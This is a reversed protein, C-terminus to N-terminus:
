LKEDEERKLQIIIATVDDHKAISPMSVEKDKISVKEFFGDTSIILENVDDLALSGDEFDVNEDYGLLYNRTLIVQYDADGVRRYLLSPIGASCYYLVNSEFDVHFILASVPEPNTEISFIDNNVDKMIDALSTYGEFKMQYLKCDKKLLTRIAGTQSFSVFDHGTCDFLLGYIGSQNEGVWYDCGDGSLDALPSFINSIRFRSTEIAEPLHEQQAIKARVLESSHLSELYRKEFFQVVQAHLTDCFEQENSSTLFLDAKTNELVKAMNYLYVTTKEGFLSDKIIAAFSMGNMDKLEADVVILVPMYKEALIFGDIANDAIKVIVGYKITWDKLWATIKEPNNSVILCVDQKTM